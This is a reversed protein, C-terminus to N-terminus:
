TVAATIPQQGTYSPIRDQEFSAPAPCVALIQAAQDTELSVARM